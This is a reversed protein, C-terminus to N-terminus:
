VQVGIILTAGVSNHEDLKMAITPNINMVALSVGLKDDCNKPNANACNYLNPQYRSGGGGVPVMTFGYTIDGDKWSAGLAPFMYISDALTLHDPKSEVVLTDPAEGLTATSDVIFIDGGIDFRNTKLKAMTAPNAASTMVDHSQTIGVGGMGRSKTGQGILFMGNTAFVSAPAVIGMACSLAAVLKLQKNIM